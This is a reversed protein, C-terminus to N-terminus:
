FSYNHVKIFNKLIMQFIHNKMQRISKSQLIGTAPVLSDFIYKGFPNKALIAKDAELPESEGQRNVARVRFKYM